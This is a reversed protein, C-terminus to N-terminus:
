INCGDKDCFSCHEIGGKSLDELKKCIDVDDAISLHCSRITIQEDTGPFINTILENRPYTVFVSLDLCVLHIRVKTLFKINSM